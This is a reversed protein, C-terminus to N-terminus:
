GAFETNVKKTRGWANFKMASYKQTVVNSRLERQANETDIVCVM